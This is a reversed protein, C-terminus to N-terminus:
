FSEQEFGPGTDNSGRDSYEKRGIAEEGVMNLLTQQLEDPSEYTQDELPGLLEYVSSTGNAHDLERDGFRDLLEENTMPYSEDEFVDEVGEFDVGTERDETVTVM